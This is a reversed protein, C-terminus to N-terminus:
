CLAKGKIFQTHKRVINEGDKVQFAIHTRVNHSQFLLMVNLAFDVVRFLQALVILM